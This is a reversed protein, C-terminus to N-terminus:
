ASPASPSSIQLQMMHHRIDGPRGARPDDRRNDGTYAVGFNQGRETVDAAMGGDLHDLCGEDAVIPGFVDECQGLRQVEVVEVPGFHRVTIALQLRCDSCQGDLNVPVNWGQWLRLNSSLLDVSRREVQPRCEISNQTRIESPYM